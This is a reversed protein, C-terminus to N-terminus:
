DRWGPFVHEITVEAEVFQKFFENLVYDDCELISKMEQRAIYMTLEGIHDYNCDKIARVISHIAETNPITM